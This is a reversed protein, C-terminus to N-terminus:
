GIKHFKYSNHFTNATVEKEIGAKNKYKTIIKWIGQRTIGENGVSVFLKNSEADRLMQKRSIAIYAKILKTLEQNMSLTKNGVKLIGISLDIDEINITLVTTAKLGYYYMLLIIIKDRLGRDKSINIQELFSDYESQTLLTGEKKEAKYKSKEFDMRRPYFGMRYIYEFFTKIVSMYRVISNKSKGEKELSVFYMMIEVESINKIDDIGKNYIYDKFKYLDRKYSEVTNKTKVKTIEDIFIEIYKEM